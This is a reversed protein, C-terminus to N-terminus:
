EGADRESALFGNYSKQFSLTAAMTILGAVRGFPPKRVTWSLGLSIPSAGDIKWTTKSLILYISIKKRSDSSLGAPNNLNAFAKHFCTWLVSKKCSSSQITSAQFAMLYM